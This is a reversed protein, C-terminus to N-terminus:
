RVNFIYRPIVDRRATLLDSETGAKLRKPEDLFKGSTEGGSILATNKIISLLPFEQHSLEDANCINFGSSSVKQIRRSHTNGASDNHFANMQICSMSDEKTKLWLALLETHFHLLSILSEKGRDFM